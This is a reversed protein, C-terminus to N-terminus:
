CIILKYGVQSRTNYRSSFSNLITSQCHNKCARSKPVLYDRFPSPVFILLRSITNYLLILTPKLYFTIYCFGSMEKTIDAYGIGVAFLLDRWFRSKTKKPFSQKFGDRSVPRMLPSGKKRATSRSWHLIYDLAPTLLYRYLYPRIAACYM